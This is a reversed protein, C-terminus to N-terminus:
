LDRLQLPVLIAIILLKAQSKEETYAVVKNAYRTLLFIPLHMLFGFLAFPLLLISYILNWLIFQHLKSSEGLRVQWDQLGLSELKERYESISLKIAQIEAEGKKQEYLSAIRKTVEVSQDLTLRRGDVIVSRALRLDLLTNFDLFINSSFVDRGLCVQITGPANITLGHLAVDLRHTLDRVQEKADSISPDLFLSTGFELYVHSRFKDKAIYNLGVPVIPVSPSFNLSAM